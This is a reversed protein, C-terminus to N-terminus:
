ERVAAADFKKARPGQRVEFEHTLSAVDGPWDQRPKEALRKEAKERLPSGGKSRSTGKRM